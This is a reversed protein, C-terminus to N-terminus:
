ATSRDFLEPRREPNVNLPSGATTMMGDHTDINDKLMVSIGHLPGRPGKAAREADLEDAIALADPNLEIVANLAPGQVDLKEIRELYMEAVSRATHVGSNMAEQLDLINMEEM